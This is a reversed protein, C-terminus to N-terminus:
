HVTGLQLGILGSYGGDALNLIFEHCQALKCAAVIENDTADQKGLLVNEKVTGNFLTPLQGVYGIQSRLAKVNLDAFEKKDLSASGGTIEYFRMVIQLVTSKGSGSRGVLGISEGPAVHLSVGDMTDSGYFISSDPRSPYSFKVSEFTIDGEIPM